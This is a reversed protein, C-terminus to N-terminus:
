PLSDDCVVANNQKRRFCRCHCSPGAFPPWFSFCDLRIKLSNIKNNNVSKTPGNIMSLTSVYKVGYCCYQVTRSLRHREICWRLFIWVCSGCFCQFSVWMTSSPPTETSPVASLFAVMVSGTISLVQLLVLLSGDVALSGISSFDTLITSSVLNTGMDDLLM